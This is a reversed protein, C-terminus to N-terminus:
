RKGWSTYIKRKVTGSGTYKRGIGVFYLYHNKMKPKKLKKYNVAVNNMSINRKVVSRNQKTAEYDPLTDMLLQIQNLRRHHEQDNWSKFSRMLLERRLPQLNGYLHYIERSLNRHPPPGPCAAETCGRM